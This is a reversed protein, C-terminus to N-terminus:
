HYFIFVASLLTNGFANIVVGGGTYEIDNETLFEIQKRALIGVDDGDLLLDLINYIYKSKIM